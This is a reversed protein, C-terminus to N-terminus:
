QQCRRRHQQQQPHQQPQPKSSGPQLGRETPPRPNSWCSYPVRPCSGSSRRHRPNYPLVNSTEGHSDRRTEVHTTRILWFWWKLLRRGRSKKGRRSVPLHQASVSGGAGAGRGDDREEGKAEGQIRKEYPTKVMHLCREFSLFYFFLTQLSLGGCCTSIRAPRLFTPFARGVLLLPQQGCTCHAGLQRSNFVTTITHSIGGKGTDAAKTRKRVFFNTDNNTNHNKPTVTDLDISSPHADRCCRSM